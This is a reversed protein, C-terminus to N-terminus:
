AILPHKLATGIRAARESEYSVISINPANHTCNSTGGSTTVPTSYPYPSNGGSVANAASHRTRHALSLSFIPPPRHPWTTPSTM